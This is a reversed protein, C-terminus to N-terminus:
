ERSATRHLSNYVASWGVMSRIYRQLTVKRVSLVSLIWLRIFKEDPLLDPNTRSLFNELDDSYLVDRRTQRNIKNGQLYQWGEKELLTIFAYEYESECFRGNYEQLKSM